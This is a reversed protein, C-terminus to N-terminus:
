RLAAGLIWARLVVVLLVDVLLVDVSRISLPIGCPGGRTLSGFTRTSSVLDNTGALLTM